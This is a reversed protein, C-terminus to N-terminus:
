GEGKILAAIADARIQDKVKAVHAYLREQANWEPTESDTFTLTEGDIKLRYTHDGDVLRVLDMSYAIRRDAEEIAGAVAERDVLVPLAALLAARAALSDTEHVRAGPSYRVNVWARAAAEVAQEFSTM